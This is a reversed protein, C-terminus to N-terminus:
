FNTYAADKWQPDTPPFHMGIDGDCLAGIADCLAHIGVDGDSHADLAKDHGVALGRIM